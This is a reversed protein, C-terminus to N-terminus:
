TKMLQPLNKQILQSDLCPLFLLILTHVNVLDRVESKLVSEKQRRLTDIKHSLQDRKEIWTDMDKALNAM